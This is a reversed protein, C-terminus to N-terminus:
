GAASYGTGGTPSSPAPAPAPAVPALQAGRQPMVGIVGTETMGLQQAAATTLDYRAGNSFPGRDVVPVTISQGDRFLTVPTGCPLTRHAVGLLGHTMRLGCATRKGYFGPGYWTARAPRYVTVTTLPAGDAGAAQADTGDGRLVARLTVQGLADPRWRALYGGDPGTVATAAAAWTGDAEQRQVEVTRGAAVAPFGGRLRLTQGLLGGPRTFLSPGGADAGAPATPVAATAGLAATGLVACLKAIRHRTL